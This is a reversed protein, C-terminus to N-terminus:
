LLRRHRQLAAIFARESAKVDEADDRAHYPQMRTRVPQQLQRTYVLAQSPAPTPQGRDTSAARSPRPMVEPDEPQMLVRIDAADWLAAATDRDTTVVTAPIGHCAHRLATTLQPLAITHPGDDVVIRLPPEVVALGRMPDGPHLYVDILPRLLDLGLAEWSPWGRNTVVAALQGALGTVLALGVVSGLAM